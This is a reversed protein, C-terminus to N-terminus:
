TCFRTVFNQVRKENGGTQRRGTTRGPIHGARRRDVRLAARHRLAINAPLDRQRDGVHLRHQTVDAAGGGVDHLAHRIAQIRRHLRGPPRNGRAPRQRHDLGVDAPAVQQEFDLQRNARAGPGHGALKM